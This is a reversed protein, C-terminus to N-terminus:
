RRIDELELRDLGRINRVQPMGLILCSRIIDSASRDQDFAEKQLWAKFEPPASSPSRNM